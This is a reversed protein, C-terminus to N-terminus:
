EVECRGEGHVLKYLPHEPTMAAIEANSLSVFPVGDLPDPKHETEPLPYWRVVNAGLSSTMWKSTEFSYSARGRILYGNGLDLLAFVNTTAGHGCRARDPLREKPDYGDRYPRLAEVMAEAKEARAQLADVEAKMKVSEDKLRDLEAELFPILIDPDSWDPEYPEPESWFGRGWKDELPAGDALYGRELDEEFTSSM